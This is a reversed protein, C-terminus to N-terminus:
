KVLGRNNLTTNLLTLYTRMQKDNLVYRMWKVDNEIARDVLAKRDSSGYQAAFMLESAFTHHIEAVAEKQDDALNLASSLKNMNVNLEYAEVNNVSAANEGEAFATTMSLMAVLTLFMKKMKKGKREKSPASHKNTIRDAGVKISFIDNLTKQRHLPVFNKQKEDHNLLFQAGM